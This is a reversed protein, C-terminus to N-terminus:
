GGLVEGYKDRVDRRIEKKVGEVIRDVDMNETEREIERLIEEMDLRKMVISGEETKAIALKSNEGIGARDRVEKPIVIRGQSDVTVVEM